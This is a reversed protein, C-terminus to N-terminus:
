QRSCAAYRVSKHSFYSRVRAPSKSLRRMHRVTARKL